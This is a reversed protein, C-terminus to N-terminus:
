SDTVKRRGAVVLGGAAAAVLLGALLGLSGAGNGAPVDTEVVPGTVAAKVDARLKVTTGSEKAVLTIVTAGAKFDAPVTLTVVARGDRTPVGDIRVTEIKATGVKRDGLHVAFETNDPAGLSTLDLGSVEFTTSGGASVVVPQDATTAVGNKEWSPSVPKNRSLFNIFADSDILGTDRSNKGERLVTFNDGGAILFSGAAVTFTAAPDMPKGDYWVGTIRSGAPADPDYTYRVNDSLGLKLFPLSATAPQWQQELLTKFQAGTIDISQLTNAFPNISYAEAFTVEGPAESGSPAYLLEARLGGPNMIGIDAGTRGPQNLTDLWAQAVLNGLASERKRDDRVVTGTSNPAFATTIDATISGVIQTGLAKAKTVAELVIAKAAIYQPDADCAPSIATVPSLNSATYQKLTKTAPDVGLVVQGLLAAYSSSQIVPRTGGGGPIPADFAYGLHTHGTFIVDVAASTNNVISNFVASGGVAASLSSATAAGEHYEAIIIDAEGNAANGDSLQAAVRNVAAVPDGFDLGAVGNPSVMTPTQQTVAGIVGIKIGNVETVYYEDLAPTTTGRNYVNAGLYPFDALGAVRGTLDGFGQDFEHNGVASASLQLADLFQITPEDKLISSTFPTAGINDGASLFLWADDAVKAKETEVTCAFTLGLAGTNNSDIRGHFDNINFLTVKTLGPDIPNKPEAAVASGAM